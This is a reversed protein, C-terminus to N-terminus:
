KSIKKTVIEKIKRSVKIFAEPPSFGGPWSRYIIKEQRDKIYSPLM